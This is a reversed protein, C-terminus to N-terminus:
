FARLSGGFWAVGSVAQPPVQDDFVVPNHITVPFTGAEGVRFTVRVIERSGVIDIAPVSGLLTVTVSLRGPSIEVVDYNVTTGGIEFANGSAYSLFDVASPDYTVEFSVAYVDNVDLAEVIVTQANGSSAGSQLSVSGSPPAPQEPDFRASLTSSGGGDSIVGASSDGGGSCGVLAAVVFLLATLFAFRQKSPM